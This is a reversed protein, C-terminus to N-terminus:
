VFEIDSTHDVFLGLGNWPPRSGVAAAYQPIVMCMEIPILVWPFRVAGTSDMSMGRILGTGDWTATLGGRILEAFRNASIVIPKFGARWNPMFDRDIDIGTLDLGGIADHRVRGELAETTYNLNADAKSGDGGVKSLRPDVCVFGRAPGWDCSKTDIRFGKAAYGEELLRTSQTGVARFMIAHGTRDAVDQIADRHKIPMGTLTFGGTGFIM